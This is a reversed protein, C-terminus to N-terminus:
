ASKREEGADRTFLSELERRSREALGFRGFGAAIVLTDQEVDRDYPRDDRTRLGPAVLRDYALTLLPTLAMSLSVVPVLSDRLPGSLLAERTGLM